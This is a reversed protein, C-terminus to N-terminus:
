SDSYKLPYSYVPCKKGIVLTVPGDRTQISKERTLVAAETYQTVYM